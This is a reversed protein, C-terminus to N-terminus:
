PSDRLQDFLTADLGSRSPQILSSPESDLELRACAWGEEGVEDHEHRPAFSVALRLYMAADDLEGNKAHIMAHYLHVLTSVTCVDSSLRGSAAYVGASFAMILFAATLRKMTADLIAM